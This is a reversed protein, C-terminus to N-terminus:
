VKVSMYHTFNETIKNVLFGAGGLALTTPTAIISLSSLIKDKREIEYLYQDRVIKELYEADGDELEAGSM